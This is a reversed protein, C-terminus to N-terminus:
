KYYLATGPIEVEKLKQSKAPGSKWLGKYEGTKKNISTEMKELVAECNVNYDGGAIYTRYYTYVYENDTEVFDRYIINATYLQHNSMFAELDLLNQVSDKDLARIEAYYGTQSNFTCYKASEKYVIIRSTYTYEELSEGRNKLYEEWSRNIYEVRFEYYFNNEGIYDITHSGPNQMFVFSIVEEEAGEFTSIPNLTVEHWWEKDKLAIGFDDPTYFDSVAIKDKKYALNILEEDTINEIEDNTTTWQIEATVSREAAVPEHNCGAWLFLVLACLCMLSSTKKM